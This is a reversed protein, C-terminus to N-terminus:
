LLSQLHLYNKEVPHTMKKTLIDVIQFHKVLILICKQIGTHETVLYKIKNPKNKEGIQGIAPMGYYVGIEGVKLMKTQIDSLIQPSNMSQAKTLVSDTIHFNFATKFKLDYEYNRFCINIREKNKYSIAKYIQGNKIQLNTGEKQEKDPYYLYLEIKNSYVQGSVLIMNVDENEGLTELQYCISTNTLNSILGNYEKNDPKILSPNILIKSDENYNFISSGVKIYENSTVNFKV